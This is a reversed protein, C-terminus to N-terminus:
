GALCYGWLKCAFTVLKCALTVTLSILYIASFLKLYTRTKKQVPRRKIREFRKATIWCTLLMCGNMAYVFVAECYDGEFGERAAVHQFILGAV